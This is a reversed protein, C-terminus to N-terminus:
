PTLVFYSREEKLSGSKNTWFKQLMLLSFQFFSEGRFPKEFYYIALLKSKILCKLIDRFKKLDDNEIITFVQHRTQDELPHQIKEGNREKLVEEIM